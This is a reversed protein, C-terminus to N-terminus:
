QIIDLISKRALDPNLPQENISSDSFEQNLVDWDDINEFNGPKEKYSINRKLNMM